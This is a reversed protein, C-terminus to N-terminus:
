LWLCVIPSALLPEQKTLCLSILMDLRKSLLICRCGTEKEGEGGGRRCLV